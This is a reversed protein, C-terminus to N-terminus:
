ADERVAAPAPRTLQEALREVEAMAYRQSRYEIMSGWGTPQGMRKWPGLALLEPNDAHVLHWSEDRPSCDAAHNCDFGLWWVDDPEGAQPVHCIHGGEGQCRAAYTLGGHVDPYTAAGEDDVVRVDYYGAAHAPHGPPVGVYGCWAGAPGRVVLCPFGAHRWEARDDPEDHWPGPAWKSRDLWRTEENM